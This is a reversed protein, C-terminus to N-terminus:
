QAIDGPLFSRLTNRALIKLLFFNFDIVRERATIRFVTGALWSIVRAPLVVAGYSSTGTDSVVFCNSIARYTLGWRSNAAVDRLVVSFVFKQLCCECAFQICYHDRCHRLCNLEGWNFLFVLLSKISRGLFM